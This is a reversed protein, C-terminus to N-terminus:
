DEFNQVIQQQDSIWQNYESDALDQKADELKVKIQQIQSKMEESTDNKIAELQKEYQAIAKTQERITKAYDYLDKQANLADLYDDAIKKLAESLADYGDSVLDKIASKEDEASKIMDRQQELLEQRREILTTNAPDNAIEADIKKIEKAYDDAQTMYANYNVAHLGEVAKGSSTIKGTDSDFLKNETTILDILWDSEDQLKSVYDEQKDFFDWNVQRLNNKYEILAKNADQIAEEVSNISDTMNYWEESYEAINGSKMAENRASILSSYQSQLKSINSSETSILTNYYKQSAIYGQTEATDIMKDYMNISHDIQKLQAEYESNINDFKTKALEALQDQLDAVADAASLANEYYQKYLKIKENLDDDAITSVDLAGNRVLSAYNESLGVSNALQMYKSYAGQEASIQENVASLEQALANNRTSWSKYTASVTKGLNTVKRQIRSILTEIWDYDQKQPESSSGSGSGSGGSSKNAKDKASSSSSGGGYKPTKIFSSASLQNKKISSQIANFVKTASAYGWDEVSDYNAMQQKQIKEQNMSNTDNYDNTYKAPTKAGLNALINQLATVYQGATGAANALAILQEIDSATNIPNNSLDIKTLLLQYLGQQAQESYGQEDMLEQIENITAETLGETAVKTALKQAELQQEVVEDANAVGIGELRSAILKANSETVNDLVGSAYVYQTCLSDLASQAEELSSADSIQQIASEVSTMDIDKGAEQLEKFSDVIGSLNSVDIGDGSIFDAMISDLDKMNTQLADLNTILDSISATTNEVKSATNEAEDGMAKIAEIFAETDTKGDVTILDADKIAQTLKPYKELTSEDLDGAQALAILDDKTTEIDKTDFIDQVSIDNYKAPDRMEYYTRVLQNLNDLMAQQSSTLSSYDVSSLDTQMNLLTPMQKDLDEGLKTVLDDASQVDDEWYKLGDSTYQKEYDAKSNLVDQYDEQARKLQAMLVIPDDEKENYAFGSTKYGNYYDDVSENKFLKDYNDEDTRILDKQKGEAVREQLDAQIELLRNQEKLNELEEQETFSLADKGELEEIRQKTTELESNISDLDSQAQQLENSADERAENAEDVTLVLADYIKYIATAVLSIAGIWATVATIAGAARTFIGIIESGLSSMFTGLKSTEGAVKSISAATTTGIETVDKMSVENNSALESVKSAVDDAKTSASTLAQEVNSVTQATGSLDPMEHETMHKQNNWDLDTIIESMTKAYDSHEVMLKEGAQNLESVIDSVNAFTEEHERMLKEDTQALDSVIDSVHSFNEEHEQMLRVGAQDLETVTKSIDTTSKRINEPNTLTEGRSAKASVRSSIDDKQANANEEKAITNEKLTSTNEKLQSTNKLLSENDATNTIKQNNIDAFRKKLVLDDGENHLPDLTETLTKIKKTVEGINSFSSGLNKIRM